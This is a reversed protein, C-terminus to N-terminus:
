PFHFYFIVENQHLLNESGQTASPLLYQGDIKQFVSIHSVSVYTTDVYVQVKKKKLRLASPSPSLSSRSWTEAGRRQEVDEVVDRSPMALMWGSPDGCDGGPDM